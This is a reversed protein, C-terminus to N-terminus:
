WDMISGIGQLYGLEQGLITRGGPLGLQPDPINLNILDSWNELPHLIILGELGSL